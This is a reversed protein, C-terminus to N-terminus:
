ATIEGILIKPRPDKEKMYALTASNKLIEVQCQVYDKCVHGGLGPSVKFHSHAGFFPDGCSLYEFNPLFDCMAAFAARYLPGIFFIHGKFQQFFNLLGPISNLKREM